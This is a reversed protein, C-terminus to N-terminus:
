EADTAPQPDPKIVATTVTFGSGVEIMPVALAQTPSVEVSVSAPPPVQLVLSAVSADTFETVPSTVPIEAPVGVM